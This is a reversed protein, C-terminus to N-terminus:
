SSSGSGGGSSPSWSPPPAGAAEAGPGTLEALFEAIVRLQDPDRRRLLADVREGHGQYHEALAAMAEPVPVVTVKRRDATDRERRVYGARELRDIVGTVTGTTLGSLEALRGPALPGHLNLLNMFQSDSPGLGLRATVAQNHLVASAIFRVLSMGIEGRLREADM